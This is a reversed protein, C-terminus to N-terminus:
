ARFRHVLTAGYWRNIFPFLVMVFLFAEPGICADFDASDGETAVPVRETHMITLFSAPKRSRQRSLTRGAASWITTTSVPDFSPESSIARDVARFQHMRVPLVVEGKRPVKREVPRLAGPDQPEIRVINYGCGRHLLEFGQFVLRGVADEPKGDPIFPGIARARIRGPACTGSGGRYESQVYLGRASSASRASAPGRGQHARHPSRAGRSHRGSVSLTLAWRLM